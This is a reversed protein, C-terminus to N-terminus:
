VWGDTYGIWFQDLLGGLEMGFGVFHAKNGIGTIKFYIM